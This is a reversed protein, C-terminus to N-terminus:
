AVLRACFTHLVDSVELAELPESRLVAIDGLPQWRVPDTPGFIAVGRAGTAAALHSVGSDNGIFARARQALAAVIQLDLDKLAAVGPEHFFREVASEAPGLIAIAKVFSSVERALKVFRDPPWNKAVSGSGPFVLCFQGRVAGAARLVQDASDFDAQALDVRSDLADGFAAVSDLYLRSIHGQGPPRFRHFSVEGGAATALSRRFNDDAAALFSYIRSFQGFFQRALPEAEADNRFLASVERRDISHGAGVCLRGVAFRALEARAMLEITADRHRRALARIAPGLCILDGLAGPFIVLMRMPLSELM